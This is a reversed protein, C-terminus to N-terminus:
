AGNPGGNGSLAALARVGPGSISLADPSGTDITLTLEDSPWSGSLASMPVLRYRQTGPLAQAMRAESTFVPVLKVGDEQEYVPLQIGRPGAPDQEPEGPEGPVPLLVDSLALTSLAIVNEGGQAIEHLAQQAPPLAGNSHIDTM